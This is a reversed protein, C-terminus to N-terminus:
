RLIAAALEPPCGSGILDVAQHLDVDTRRALQSADRRDYGAQLLQELRWGFVEEMKAERQEDLQAATM